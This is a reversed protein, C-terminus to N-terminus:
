DAIPSFNKSYPSSKRWESVGALLRDTNTEWNFNAQIFDAGAQALAIRHEPYQILSSICEVIADPSESPVLKATQNHIAYDLHGGIDTCVVACGCCMAEAPPLAWGEGLSPSLFIAHENYLSPLDSPKQHYQIWGPLAPKPHVGFLTAKLGPFRDRLARLAEIGFKSGKRPEPSLLMIISLPDRQKPPVNCCFVALDIANPLYFPPSKSYAAVTRTLYNSICVHHVPLEYSAHVLEEFGTWIEYDQILNVKVGKSSPLKAVMHVMEWWTSITVDADPVYHDAVMPIIKSSVEPKLPFWKPRRVNRLWFIARKIWVPTPSKKFPRSISHLVCVRHGRASIRNAYEYM